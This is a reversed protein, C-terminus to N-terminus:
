RNRSPARSIRRALNETFTMVNLTRQRVRVLRSRKAQIAVPGNTFYLRGIISFKANNRWLNQLLTLFAECSFADRIGM